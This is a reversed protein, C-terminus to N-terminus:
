VRMRKRMGILMAAGGIILALSSPEPAVVDASYVVLGSMGPGLSAAPMDFSLSTTDSVQVTALAFENGSGGPGFTLSFTDTNTSSDEVTITGNNYTLGRPEAFLYQVQYTRSADLGTIDVTLPSNLGSFAITHFLADAGLSAQGWTTSTTGDVSFPASTYFNISGTGSTANVNSFAIGDRTLAGGNGLNLAFDLTGFSNDLTPASSGNIVSTSIVSAQVSVVMCTLSAATAVLINKVTNKMIKEGAATISTNMTKIEKKM